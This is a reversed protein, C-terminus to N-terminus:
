RCCVGSRSNWASCPMTVSDHLGSADPLRTRSSGTMPRIARCCPAVGAWTTMAHCRASPSTTSGLDTVGDRM